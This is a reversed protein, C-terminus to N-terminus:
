ASDLQVDVLGGLNAARLAGKRDGPHISCPRLPPIQREFSSCAFAVFFLQWGECGWPFPIWTQLLLLAGQPLAAPIDSSNVYDTTLSFGQLRNKKWNEM